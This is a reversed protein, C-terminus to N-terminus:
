ASVTALVAGFVASTVEIDAPDLEIFPPRGSAKQVEVGNAYVEFSLVSALRVTINRVPTVNGIRSRVGRLTTESSADFVTQSETDSISL